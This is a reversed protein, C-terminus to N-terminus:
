PTDRFKALDDYIGQLREMMGRMTFERAVREPAAARWRAAEPPDGALWALAGALARHDGAAVLLGTQGDRVVEAVGGAASAVVPLGAAAAEIAVLGLPEPRTSPVTVADAAGLVTDVDDRFGLRVLRDEVGLESALADLREGEGSGPVADGAVVGVAGIDALEPLALARALM